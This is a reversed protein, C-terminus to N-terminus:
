LADTAVADTMLHAPKSAHKPRFASVFEDNTELYAGDILDICYPVAPFVAALCEGIASPKGPLNIILCAGRTGAIQRSLIATPVVKLSQARMQEAFGDLIKDCVAATAEPTVDRKAPGTGGTTLILSCHLTDALEMLTAEILPQEDAIVRRHATWDSKLAARMWEHMAPGGLDEYEGRSARDSITVFGINIQNKQM